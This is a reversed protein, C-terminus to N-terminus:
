AELNKVFNDILKKELNDYNQDKITELNTVGKDNVGCPIINQYKTLDNRVNISFGHYAIWKSIRIGIAAVKKIKTATNIRIPM